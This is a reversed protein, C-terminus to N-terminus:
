LRAERLDDGHDIDGVVRRPGGGKERGRLTSTLHGIRPTAPTVAPWASRARRLGPARLAAARRSRCDVWLPYTEPAMVALGPPLGWRRIPAECWCLACVGCPAQGVAGALTCSADWLPMFRTLAHQVGRRLATSASARPSGPLVACQKAHRKVAFGHWIQTSIRRFHAVHIGCIHRPLRPTTQLPM